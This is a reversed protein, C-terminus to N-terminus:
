NEFISLGLWNAILAPTEKGEIEITLTNTRLLETDSRATVADLVFRGRIRSGAVVPTLFRLKDFGYNIAMVQGPADTFCDYAMRSAMSLTLFGHAIAGGFPTKEAARVPDVHIWQEDQTIRAFSDIMNQDISYWDSVGVNQGLKAELAGLASQMASM